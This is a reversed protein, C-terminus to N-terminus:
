YLFAGRTAPTTAATNIPPTFSVWAAGQWLTNEVPNQTCLATLLEPTTQTPLPRATLAPPRHIVPERSAAASTNGKCGAFVATGEFLAAGGLARLAFAPDRRRLELISRVKRMM